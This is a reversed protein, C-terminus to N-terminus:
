EMNETIYSKIQNLTDFNAVNLDADPVSVGFEDEIFTVMDVLVFSDLLGSSFIPEDPEPTKVEVGTEIMKDKLFAIIEKKM